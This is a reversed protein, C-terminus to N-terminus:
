VRHVEVQGRPLWSRGGAELLFTGWLRPIVTGQGHGAPFAM